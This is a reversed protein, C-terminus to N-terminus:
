QREARICSPLLRGADRQRDSVKKKISGNGGKRHEWRRRVGDMEMKMEMRSEAEM